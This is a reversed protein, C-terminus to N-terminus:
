SITDNKIKDRLKKAKQLNKKSFAKKIYKENENNIIIPEIFIKTM